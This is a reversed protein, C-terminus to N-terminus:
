SGKIHEIDFLKVMFIIQTGSPKARISFGPVCRSLMDLFPFLDLFPFMDLFLFMDLFPFMDSFPFMDLFQFIDLFRFMDFLPLM